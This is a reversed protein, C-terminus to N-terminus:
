MWNARAARSWFQSQIVQRFSNSRATAVFGLQGALQLAEGRGCGYDLLTKGEPKLHACLLELGVKKWYNEYFDQRNSAPDVAYPLHRVEM